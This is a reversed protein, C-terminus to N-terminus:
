FTIIWWKPMTYGLVRLIVNVILWALFIILYGRLVSDRISKIQNIATPSGLGFYSILGVALIVLVLIILGLKWLLFDLANKFLWFIHKFQCPEAENIEPTKPNDYRRGCPVLGGSMGEPASIIRFDELSSWDGCNEAEPDKCSRVAWSYNGLGLDYFESFTSSVIREKSSGDPLNLHCQYYNAGTSTWRFDIKGAWIPSEASTPYIISPTQLAAETFAPYLFNILLFVLLIKSIKVEM